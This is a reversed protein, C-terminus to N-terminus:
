VLVVECGTPDTTVGSSRKWFPISASTFTFACEVTHGVLIDVAAM